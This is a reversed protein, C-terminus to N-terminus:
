YAAYNNILPEIIVKELLMNKVFQFYQDQQNDSITIAQQNSRFDTLHRQRSAGHKALAHWM